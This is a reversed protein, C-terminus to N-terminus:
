PAAPPRTEDCDGAAPVTSGTPESSGTHHIRPADGAEQLNMGFDILNVLVQVHGQPQMDGGMVGAGVVHLREPAPTSKDGQSKLNDQLFFVRVLNRSTSGVVLKAMLNDYYQSILSGALVGSDVRVGPGEHRRHRGDPEM